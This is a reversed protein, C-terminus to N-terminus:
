MEWKYLGDRGISCNTILLTSNKHVRNQLTFKDSECVWNTRNWFKINNDYSYVYTCMDKNIMNCTFQSTLSFVECSALSPHNWFEENWLAAHQITLTESSVHPALVRETFYENLSTDIWHLVWETFYENLLTSM